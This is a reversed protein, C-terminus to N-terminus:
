LLVDRCQEQYLHFTFLSFPTLCFFFNRFKCYSFKLHTIITDQSVTGPQTIVHLSSITICMVWGHSYESLVLESYSLSPIVQNLFGFSVFNNFSISSSFYMRVPENYHRLYLIQQYTYLLSIQLQTVTLKIKYQYRIDIYHRM